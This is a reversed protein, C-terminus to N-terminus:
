EVIRWYPNMWANRPIPGIFRGVDNQKVGPLARLAELDPEECGVLALNISDTHESQWVAVVRQVIHRRGNFEPCHAEGRALREIIKPQQSHVYLLGLDQRRVTAEQM